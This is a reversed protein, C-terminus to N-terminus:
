KKKLQLPHGAEDSSGGSIFSSSNWFYLAWIKSAILFYKNYIRIVLILTKEKNYRSEEKINIIELHNTTTMWMRDFVIQYNQPNWNQTLGQLDVSSRVLWVIRSFSQSFKEDFRSLFFMINAGKQPSTPHSFLILASLALYSM